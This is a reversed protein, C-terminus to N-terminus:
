LQSVKFKIAESKLESSLHKKFNNITSCNICSAPLMNWNNIARNSSFMKKRVDLRFRKKFLKQDHGRTGGKDLQFLLEPNIDCKGNVIKFTEVLDSTM